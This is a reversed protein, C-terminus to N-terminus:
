ERSSQLRCQSQALRTAGTSPVRGRGRSRSTSEIVWELAVPLISLFALAKAAQKEGLGPARRGVLVTFWLEARRALLAQSSISALPKAGLLSSQGASVM